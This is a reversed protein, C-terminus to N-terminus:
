YKSTLGANAGCKRSHVMLVQDMDAILSEAEVGKWWLEFEEFTVQTPAPFALPKLSLSFLRGKRLL